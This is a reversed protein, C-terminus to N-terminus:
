LAGTAITYGQAVDLLPRTAYDSTGGAETLPITIRSLVRNEAPMGPRQVTIVDGVDLAPNVAGRATVTEAMGVARPLASRAASIAQQVTTVHPLAMFLPAKYRPWALPGSAVAAYGTVPAVDPASSRVIVINHCGDLDTTASADEMSALEHDVDLTWVPAATGDPVRRIIARGVADFYVESGMSTAMSEIAQWREDVWSAAGTAARSGTLDYVTLTSDVDLIMGRIQDVVSQGPATNWPLWLRARAIKRSRDDCTVKVGSYFSPLEPATPSGTFVPVREVISGFRVGTEIYVESTPTLLDYVDPDAFELECTRRVQSGEDVTVSGASIGVTGGTALAESETVAEVVTSGTTIRVLTTVEYGTLLADSFAESVPWM